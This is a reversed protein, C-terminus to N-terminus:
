DLLGLGQCYDQWPKDEMDILGTFDSLFSLLVRLRFSATLYLHM